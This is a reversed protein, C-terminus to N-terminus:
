RCNSILFRLSVKSWFLVSSNPLAGRCCIRSACASVALALSSASSSRCRTDTSSASSALRLAFICPITDFSSSSAACSSACRCAAPRSACRRSRAAAGTTDCDSKSAACSCISPRLLLNTSKLCCNSLMTGAALKSSASFSFRARFFSISRILFRMSVMTGLSVASRDLASISPSDARTFCSWCSSSVEVADSCASCASSACALASIWRRCLLRWVM